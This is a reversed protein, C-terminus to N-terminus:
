FPPGWLPLSKQRNAALTTDPVCYTSLFKMGAMHKEPSGKAPVPLSAPRYLLFESRTAM